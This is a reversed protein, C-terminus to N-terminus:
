GYTWFHLIVLTGRLSALTVRRSNVWQLDAPFEPARVVGPYERM